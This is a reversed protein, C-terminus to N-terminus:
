RQVSKLVNALRGVTALIQIADDETLKERSRLQWVALTRDVLEPTIWPPTGAPLRRPAVARPKALTAPM